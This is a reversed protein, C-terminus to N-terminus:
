AADADEAAAPRFWLSGPRTFLLVMSVVDLVTSVWGCVDELPTASESAPVFVAAAVSFLFLVLWAMRAWNRGGQICVILYASFVLIATVIVLTVVGGTDQADGFVHIFSPLGLLFSIWLLRVAQM